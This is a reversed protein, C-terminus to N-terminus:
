YCKRMVVTGGHYRTFKIRNHVDVTLKVDTDLKMAVFDVFM